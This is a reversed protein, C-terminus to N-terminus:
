NISTNKSLSFHFIMALGLFPTMKASIPLLIYPKLPWKDTIIYMLLLCVQYKTEVVITGSHSIVFVILFYVAV